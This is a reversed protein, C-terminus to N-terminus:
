KLLKDGYSGFTGDKYFIVIRDIAKSSDAEPENKAETQQINTKSTPASSIPTPTISIMEGAGNLLWYLSLDPFAANLKLIFDLSPKNRGSLVHSISSKQVQILEAFASASLGYYSMIKSLRARFDDTNMM